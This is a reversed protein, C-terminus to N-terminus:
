RSNHVAPSAPNKTPSTSAAEGSLGATPLDHQALALFDDLHKCAIIRRRGVNLYALKGTRIQDYLLDRSLRTIRAAEDVSYAVRDALSDARAGSKEAQIPSTTSQTHTTV